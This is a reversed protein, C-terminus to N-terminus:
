CLMVDFCCEVEKDCLNSLVIFLVGMTYDCGKYEVVDNCSTIIVNCKNFTDGEVDIPYISYDFPLITTTHHQLIVNHRQKIDNHHQITSM